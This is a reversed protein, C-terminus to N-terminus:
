NTPSKYNNIAEQTAAQLANFDIKYKSAFYEIIMQQKRRFINKSAEPVDDKAIVNDYYEQGFVLLFSVTEVFDEDANSKAYASILGQRHADDDTNNFWTATYWQPNLFKWELPYLVNQHLIHAFEHHITHLLEQLAEKNAPNFDNLRLLVIKRGGEAQGLVITGNTNYEASGALVFQRPAFTKIFTQGAVKEYPLLWIQKVANIVKIVQDEKIPVLNRLYNLEYPDWKYKIEINYPTLLEKDIWQDIPGTTWVDGGLGVIPTEPLPDDNNCSLLSFLAIGFCCYKIIKKM